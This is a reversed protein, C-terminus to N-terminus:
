QQVEWQACGSSRNLLGNQELVGQAEALESRLRRIEQAAERCDHLVDHIEAKGMHAELRDVIDSMQHEKHKPAMQRLKARIEGLTMESPAEWALKVAEIPMTEGFLEIMEAQTIPAESM